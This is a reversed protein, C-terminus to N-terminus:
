SNGDHAKIRIKLRCEKKGDYGKGGECISLAGHLAITELCQFAIQLVDPHELSRVLRYRIHFVGIELRFEGSVVLIHRGESNVEILRKEFESQIGESFLGPIGM